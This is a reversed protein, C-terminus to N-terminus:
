PHPPVSEELVKFLVDVANDWPVVLQRQRPSLGLPVPVNVVAFQFDVSGGWGGM